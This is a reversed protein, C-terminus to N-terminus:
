PAVRELKALRAEMRALIDRTQVLTREVRLWAQGMVTIDAQINRIDDRMATQEAQIRELREGIFDLTIEAM